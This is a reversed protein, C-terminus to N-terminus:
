DFGISFGKSTRSPQQRLKSQANVLQENPSEVNKLVTNNLSNFGLSLGEAIKMAQKELEEQVNVLQETPTNTPQTDATNFGLNFRSLRKNIHQAQVNSKQNGEFSVDNQRTLIEANAMTTLSLLTTAILISNNIKM